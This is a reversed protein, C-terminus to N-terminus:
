VYSCLLLFNLRIDKQEETKGKLGCGCGVYHSCESDARTNGSKKHGGHGEADCVVCLFTRRMLM